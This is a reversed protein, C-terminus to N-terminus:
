LGVKKELKELRNFITKLQENVIADTLKRNELEKQVIDLTKQVSLLSENTTKLTYFSKVLFVFIPTVFGILTIIYLVIEKHEM